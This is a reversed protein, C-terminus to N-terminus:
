VPSYELAVILLVNILELISALLDTAYARATDIEWAMLIRLLWM